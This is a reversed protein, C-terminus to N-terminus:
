VMEITQMGLTRAVWLEGSLGKKHFNLVSCIALYEGSARTRGIRITSLCPGSCADCQEVITDNTALTPYATGVWSLQTM